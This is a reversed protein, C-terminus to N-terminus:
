ETYLTLLVGLIILLAPWARKFFHQWKQPTTTLGAVGNTLVVGFGTLSFWLHQKQIHHMSEM